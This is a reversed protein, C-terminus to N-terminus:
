FSCTAVLRVKVSGCLEPVSKRHASISAAINRSLGIFQLDDNKDYVAYVGAGSLLEGVLGDNEPSVAVAETEGLNKVALAVM